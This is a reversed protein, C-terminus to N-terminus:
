LTSCMKDTRDLEEATETNVERNCEVIIMGVFEAMMVMWILESLQKILMTHSSTKLTSSLSM